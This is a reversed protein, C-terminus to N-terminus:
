VLAKRLPCCAKDLQLYCCVSGCAERSYFNTCRELLIGGWSSHFLRAISHTHIYALFPLCEFSTIMKRWDSLLPVFEHSSDCTMGATHIRHAWLFHCLSPITAYAGTDMSVVLSASTLFRKSAWQAGGWWWDRWRSPQQPVMSSKAVLERWKERHEVARQSKGFEMSDM